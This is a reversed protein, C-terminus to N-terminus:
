GRTDASASLRGGPRRRPHTPADASPAVLRALLASAPEDAPNQAVLQGSFAAKLTAQRLGSSAHAQRMVDAVVADAQSLMSQVISIAEDQEDLPPVLMACDRLQELNLTKRAVERASGTLLQRMREERLCLELWEARVAPQPTLVAVARAVNAGALDSPVIGTRGITGVITLLVEGGRLRTRPYQATVGPAVHKLSGQDVRGDAVDCVRVLPVGGDVDPGPQLVGYAIPREARTAAEVSVLAWRSPIEVNIGHKPEAAEPYLAQKADGAQRAPVWANRRSDLVRHKADDHPEGSRDRHARWERTLEGTVAAKLVSQRYREVLKQVRGLAREGEDIESFLEEIRSVIRAQEASPALPLASQRLFDAPVRRQGVAGQM